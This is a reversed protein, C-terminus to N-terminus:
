SAGAHAIPIVFNFKAQWSNKLDNMKAITDIINAIGNPTATEKIKVLYTFTDANPHSNGTEIYGFSQTLNDLIVIKIRAIEIKAGSKLLM